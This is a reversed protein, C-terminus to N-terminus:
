YTMNSVRPDAYLEEVKEKALVAVKEPHPINEVGFLWHRLYLDAIPYQEIHHRFAEGDYVLYLEVLHARAEVTPSVDYNIGSRLTNRSLAMDILSERADNLLPNSFTICRDIKEDLAKSLRAIDSFNKM